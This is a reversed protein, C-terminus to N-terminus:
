QWIKIFCSNERYTKSIYEFYLIKQFDTCQSGLEIRVSPLLSQRFSMVLNMKRKGCNQSRAELCLYTQNNIPNWYNPIYHNYKTLSASTEQLLFSSYNKGRLVSSTVM